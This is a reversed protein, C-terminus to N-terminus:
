RKWHLAFILTFLRRATEQDLDVKGKLRSQLVAAGEDHLGRRGMDIAEIRNPAANRLASYYSECVASYDKLVRHLPTLSLVHSVVREGSQTSVDFVLQRDSIGLRLRYPGGDHGLPRFRNEELLDHIAIEREHEAEASSVAISIDDLVVEVLRGQNRLAQDDTAM